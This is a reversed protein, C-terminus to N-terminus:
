NSIKNNSLKRYATETNKKYRETGLDKYLKKQWNPENPIRTLYKKLYM